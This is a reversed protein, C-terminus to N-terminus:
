RSGSVRAPSGTSFARTQSGISQDFIHFCKYLKASHRFRLGDLCRQLLERANGTTSLRDALKKRILFAM